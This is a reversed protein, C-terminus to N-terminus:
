AKRPKVFERIKNESEHMMLDIRRITDDPAEEMDADYPPYSKMMVNQPMNAVASRDENLMGDERMAERRREFEHVDHSEHEGYSSYHKKHHKKSAHHRKHAM